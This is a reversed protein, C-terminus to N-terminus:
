VDVSENTQDIGRKNNFARDESAVAGTGRAHSRVKFFPSEQDRFVRGSEGAANVDFNAAISSVDPQEGHIRWSLTRTQAPLQHFRRLLDKTLCVADGHIQANDARSRWQRGKVAVEAVGFHPRRIQRCVRMCSDWALEDM